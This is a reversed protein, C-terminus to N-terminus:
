LEVVRNKIAFMVLGATNSSQTKSLLNARHAKVTDYSISLKEAIQENSLSNCILKLIEIERKSLTQIIEKKPKQGIATMVNQLLEASFWSGGKSIEVIANELEKLGANKLVFGKAGAEIMSYYYKEDGFSSLVLVKVTPFRESVLKTTAIGDIGPPMSIDMLVLDTTQTELLILLENGTAVDAIVDVVKKTTLIKKISERFMRHDDAIILRIM